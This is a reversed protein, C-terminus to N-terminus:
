FSPLQSMEQKNLENAIVMMLPNKSKMKAQSM